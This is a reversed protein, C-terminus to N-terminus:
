FHTMKRRLMSNAGFEEILQPLDRIASGTAITEIVEIRGIIEFDKHM